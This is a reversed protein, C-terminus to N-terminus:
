FKFGDDEEEEEDEGDDAFDDPNIYEFDDESPTDDSAEESEEEEEEEDEDLAVLPVDDMDADLDAAVDEDDVWDDSEEDMPKEKAAQEKKCEICMDEGEECYNTHCIPCLKGESEDEEDPLLFSPEVLGLEAKCIDCYNETVPIYNLECRPCLKYKREM